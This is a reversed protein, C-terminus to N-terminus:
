TRDLVCDGCVASTDGGLQYILCCSTRRFSPGSRRHGGEVRLDALTVDAAARARDALDPRSRAIMQAASNAASAINGWVTRPPVGYESITAATLSEVVGAVPDFRRDDRLALSLPFPGGLEDQWWCNELDVTTSDAHLTAIAIAPALFRAILGLQAVSAAVRLDVSDPAGGRALASRVRTVRGDLVAPDEVLECV